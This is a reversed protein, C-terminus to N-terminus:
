EEKLEEILTDLLKFAEKPSLDDTDLQRLKDLVDIETTSAAYSNAQSTDFLSLQQSQGRAGEQAELASLISQANQILSHPLGALEAVHIGYSRDTAGAFIKHLFVLHGDEESAGVHVNRLGQLKDELDVLEHYHTSFLTKAHYHDHLYELIAQALAIGDYTSTGRGLEDFLLLSYDSAHQLAQNAEMMEVMFTSQGALLNDAAGIRTFIRDFIPLEASQAPVFCGMQAMIVILALQRMYTSKGSMNPGTIMLISTDEDMIISNPVFNEKGIVGEVVPHRSDVVNIVRKQMSLSPRVFQQNESIEAFSQLVDIAAIAQAISQLQSQAEKVELRVQTFLEYELALSREEAELIKAEMEKLEPTIFREANTLTQKRDYRGEELLHLNAKSVEIYYGFVKNFGIKLSKIGTKEREQAQLSALWQRGNRMADRYADLQENFGDKIVDGDKLTAKSDENLAGDILAVLDPVEVVQNLLANWHESPLEKIQELIAPLRMLSNKLQNLERPNVTGMAVKAVLRELDYVGHLNEKIEMRNFYHNILDQVQDYRNNIDDEAILPRDLWQKLLRQGMATETQNLFALLSASKKGTRVSQTLELNQKAFYDMHLYHSVEYHAAEQWHDIAQGQMSNIYSILFILCDREVPSDINALIDGYTQDSSQSKSRSLTFTHLNELATIEEQSLSQDLLLENANLQMFETKVAEFDTVQTVKLEGTGVDAYALVYAEEVARIALIFNNAQNGVEESMYTGPTIVQIVDRAVMGKASKPDEMQEAIAVKYGHEILVKIYAQSSHYPVGCMPIPDEANKNRSTLTIELIQAAKRADDNFLEYFDGLRFFLFADPYQDKLKQYQAMMPTQKTKQPM